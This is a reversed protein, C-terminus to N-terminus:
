TVKEPGSRIPGSVMWAAFNQKSFVETTEKSAVSTVIKRMGQISGIHPSPPGGGAPRPRLPAKM